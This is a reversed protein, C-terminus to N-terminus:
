LPRDRTNVCKKATNGLQWVSTKSYPASASSSAPTGPSFNEGHRPTETLPKRWSPRGRLHDGHCATSRPLRLSTAPLPDLKGNADSLLPASSSRPTGVFRFGARAKRAETDKHRQSLSEGLRGEVAVGATGEVFGLVTSDGDFHDVM